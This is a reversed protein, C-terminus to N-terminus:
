RNFCPNKLLRSLQPICFFTMEPVVPPLCDAVEEFRDM